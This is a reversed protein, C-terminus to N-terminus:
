HLAGAVYDGLHDAHDFLPLMTLREAHGLVARYAPAFDHAGFALRDAATNIRIARRPQLFRYDMERRAADHIDVPQTFSQYRLQDIAPQHLVDGIQIPQRECVEDLQLP